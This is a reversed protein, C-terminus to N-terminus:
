ERFKETRSLNKKAEVRDVDVHQIATTHKHGDDPSLEKPPSTSYLHHSPLALQICQFNLLQM